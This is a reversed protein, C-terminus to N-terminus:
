ADDHVGDILSEQLDDNAVPMYHKRNRVHVVLWLAALAVAAAVLVGLSVLV